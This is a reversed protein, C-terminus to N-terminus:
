RVTGVADCRDDIEAGNGVPTWERGWIRAYDARAQANRAMAHNLAAALVTTYTPDAALLMTDVDVMFDVSVLCQRARLLFRCQGHM